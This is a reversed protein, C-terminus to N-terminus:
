KWTLRNEYIDGSESLLRVQLIWSSVDDEWPATVTAVLVRKKPPVDLKSWAVDVLSDKGNVIRRVNVNALKITKKKRSQNRLFVSVTYRDSPKLHGRTSDLEARGPVRAARKVNLDEVDDFGEVEKVRGEAGESSAIDPVLTRALGLRTTAARAKGKRASADDAALALADDFLADAEALKGQALAAEGDAVLKAVRAPDVPPPTAITPLPSPPPPASTPPPTAEPSRLAPARTPVPSPAATPPASAVDTAIPPATPALTPPAEPSPKAGGGCAAVAGAAAALCWIRVARSAGRM